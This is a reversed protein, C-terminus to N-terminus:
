KFGCRKCVTVETRVAGGMFIVSRDLDIGNALLGAGTGAERQGKALAADPMRHGSARDSM